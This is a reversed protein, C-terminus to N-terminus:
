DGVFWGADTKPFCALDEVIRFEFFDRTKCIVLPLTM